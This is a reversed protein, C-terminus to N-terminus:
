ARGKKAGLLRELLGHAAAFLLLSLVVELYAASDHLNQEASVGFSNVTLVLATVRLFNTGFAIVPILLIFLISVLRRSSGVFFLYILGVSILSVLSWLGSCADAVQLQYFGISIIVGNLAVPYGLHGLVSVVAISVWAKLPVLVSDAVSGPLPITALLLLNVPWLKRIAKMGAWLLTLGAAILPLALGELQVFAVSRGILASLLGPAIFAWGLSQERANTRWDFLARQRWYLLAAAGLVVPAQGNTGIWWYTVAMDYIIATLLVGLGALAWVTADESWRAAGSRRPGLDISEAM